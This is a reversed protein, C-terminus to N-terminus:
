MEMLKDYCMKIVRADWLANHKQKLMPEYVSGCGFKERSIDPDVGKIKMLTCIDFPIYYICDPIDLATEGLLDNFLVWDYSLCDSWIEFKEKSTGKIHNLWNLLKDKIYESNGKVLWDEPTQRYSFSINNIDEMELSTHKSIFEDNLYLKNIVNERLWKNVQLLKYDTFEAYFTHNDETIIGISILSTNQRLGTFETDFFLKKM